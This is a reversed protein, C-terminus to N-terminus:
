GWADQETNSLLFRLMSRKVKCMNLFFSFWLLLSIWISTFCMEPSGPFKDCHLRSPKAALELTFLFTLKEYSASPHASTGTRGMTTSHTPWISHFGEHQLLSYVVYCLIQIRVRCKVKLSFLQRGAGWRKAEFCYSVLQPPPMLLPSAKLKLGVSGPTTACMMPHYM